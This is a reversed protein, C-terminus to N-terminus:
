YLTGAVPTRISGHDYPLVYDAVQTTNTDALHFAAESPRFVGVTETGDQNWDGVVLRDGAIGYIFELDAFGTTFDNRLYVYGARYVGVETIGDADIDVTFPQDGGIGFWFDVDPPGAALTNTLLVNGDRYVGLTDCGDGNWDGVLPM